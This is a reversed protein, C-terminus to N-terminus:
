RHRNPNRERNISCMPIDRSAQRDIQAQELGNHNEDEDYTKLNKDTM